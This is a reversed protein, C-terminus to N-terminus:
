WIKKWNYLTKWNDCYEKDCDKKDCYKKIEKCSTVSDKDFYALTPIGDDLM